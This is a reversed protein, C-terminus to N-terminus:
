RCKFKISNVKRFAESGFEHSYPKDFLDPRPTRFDHEDDRVFPKDKQGTFHSQFRNLMSKCQSISM